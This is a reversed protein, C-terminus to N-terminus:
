AAAPTLGLRAISSRYPKIAVAATNLRLEFRRTFVGEIGFESRGLMGRLEEATYYRERQETAAAHILGCEVLWGLFPAASPDLSTAILMGGPRLVRHLEGVLAALRDVRVREIVALLTVVDVQNDEIPLAADRTMDFNVWQVGALQPDAALRPDDAATRDVGIRETFGCRRLWQPDHGCGFDLLCGTRQDNPILRDVVAARRRAFFRDLRTVGAPRQAYTGKGM